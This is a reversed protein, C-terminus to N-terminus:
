PAAVCTAQSLAGNATDVLTCQDGSQSTNRLTLTTGNDADPSVNVKITQGDTSSLPFTTGSSASLEPEGAVIAAAVSASNRYLGQGNPNDVADARAAKWAVTLYQKAASDHAKKTQNLFSPASVAILIAIILIVVLLEILTFGGEKKIFRKM